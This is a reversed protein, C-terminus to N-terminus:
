IKILEGQYANHAEIETVYRGIVKRRGNIYISARWKGRSLLFVGTYKSRRKKDKSCNQRHTLIQLNTLNNNIKNHDIHDVVIARGNPRFGLFVEAVLQHVKRSKGKGDKCLSVFPYGKSLNQKLIQGKRGGRSLSKVNGMNSVQYHGAYNLVDRWYEKTEEEM